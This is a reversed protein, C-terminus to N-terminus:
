EKGEGEKEQAIIELKGKCKRCPYLKNKDERWIISTYNCSQCKTLFPKVKM